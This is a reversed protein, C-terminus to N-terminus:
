KEDACLCVQVSNKRYLCGLRSLLASKLVQVIQDDPTQILQKKLTEKRPRNYTRSVLEPVTDFHTAANFSQASRYLIDFTLKSCLLGPSLAPKCIFHKVLTGPPLCPPKM